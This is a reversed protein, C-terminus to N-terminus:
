FVRFDHAHGVVDGIAGVPPAVSLAGGRGSADVGLGEPLRIARGWRGEAVVIPVVEGLGMGVEPEVVRVGRLLPHAGVGEAHVRGVLDDGGLDPSLQRGHIVVQADTNAGLRGGIDGLRAGIRRQGLNDRLVEEHRGRLLELAEGRDALVAAAYSLLHAHHVKGVRV